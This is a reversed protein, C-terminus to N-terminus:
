DGRRVMVVVAVNGRWCRFLLVHVIHLSEDLEGEAVAKVKRLGLVKLCTKMSM